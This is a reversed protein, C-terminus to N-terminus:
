SRPSLQKWCGTSQQPLMHNWAEIDGPADLTDFTDESELSAEVRIHVYVLVTRESKWVEPKRTVSHIHYFYGRGSRAVLQM